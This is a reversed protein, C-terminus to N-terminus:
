PTNGACAPIARQHHTLLGRRLLTGRAHPSPGGFIMLGGRIARTNGACAPIARVRRDARLDGHLTGRAHPSPGSVRCGNSNSRPHEGRMRPHGPTTPAAPEDTSTNGACAPIARSELVDAAHHPPTGRAHPSPGYADLSDPDDTIHEGRMRPHGALVHRATTPSGTNGACAPIARMMGTLPTNPYHTGRAHPSPGCITQTVAIRGSHEGRMRPHGPSAPRSQAPRPTNGACAPIARPYARLIVFLPRTGRAHPSPGSDAHGFKGFGGHEGRM